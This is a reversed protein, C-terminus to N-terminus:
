LLAEGKLLRYFQFYKRTCLTNAGTIQYFSDPMSFVLLNRRVIEMGAMESFPFSFSGITLAHRDMKLPGSCLLKRHHRDDTQYLDAIEDAFEFDERAIQESLWSDEFREWEELTSFPFGQLGYQGDLSGSLGCHRCTITEGSTQLTGVERCAPCLFFGSELWEARKRSKYNAPESQIREYADEKLDQAIRDNIESASMKRLTEPTYINAVHGYYKGRRIGRGWRPLTFFGGEFRYTVLTAGCTKALKGITPLMPSNTGDFSCTGEPFICVNLGAKLCALIEKVATVASDGKRRIIPDFFFHLLCSAFGKQMLHEDAVIYMQKVFSLCVLVPDAATVHNALLLYPGDIRIKRDTRFAYILKIIPGLLFGILSFIIQHFLHRNLRTKM